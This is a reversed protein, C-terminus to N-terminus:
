MGLSKPSILLRLIGHGTKLKKWNTIDIDIVALGTTSLKINVTTQSIFFSILNEFSPNHGILLITDLKDPLNQLIKVIKKEDQDYIEEKFTVDNNFHIEEVIIKTTMKVRKASSALIMSPKSLTKKIFKGMIVADKKGKESIIRDFDEKDGNAKESKAHRLIFLTKM